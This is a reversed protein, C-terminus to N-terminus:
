MIFCRESSGKTDKKQSGSANESCDFTSVLNGFNNMLDFKSKNSNSWDIGNLFLNMNPKQLAQNAAKFQSSWIAVEDGAALIFNRDFIFSISGNEEDTQNIRWNGLNVSTKGVNRILVLGSSPEPFFIKIDPNEFIPPLTFDKPDTSIRKRKIDKKVGLISTRRKRTKDVIKPLNYRSEEGNLFHEYALIENDLAMKQELLNQYCELQHQLDKTIRLIETNSSENDSRRLKSENELKVEFDKILRDKEKLCSELKDINAEMKDRTNKWNQDSKLVTKEAEILAKELQEIRFKFSETLEANNIQLQQDFKKRM